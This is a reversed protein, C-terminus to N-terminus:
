PANKSWLHTLYETLTREGGHIFILEDNDLHKHVRVKRGPSQEEVCFSIGEIGHKAKSIKITIPVKRRGTLLHIGENQRVVIGKDNTSAPKSFSIKPLSAFISTCFGLISTQVFKRRGQQLYNM